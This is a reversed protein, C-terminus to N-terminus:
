LSGGIVLLMFVMAVLTVAALIEGIIVALPQCMLEGLAAIAKRM